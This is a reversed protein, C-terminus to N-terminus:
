MGEMELLREVDVVARHVVRLEGILRVGSIDDGITDSVTDGVLSAKVQPSTETHLEVAIAMSPRDVQRRPHATALAPEGGTPELVRRLRHRLDVADQVGLERVLFRLLSGVRPDEM